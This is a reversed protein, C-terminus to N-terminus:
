RAILLKRVWGGGRATEVSVFGEEEKGTFILEEGKALTAVTDSQDSPKAMLKVNAIKPRLVDGLIAFASVILGGVLFRLAYDM